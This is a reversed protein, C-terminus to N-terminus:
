GISQSNPYDLVAFMFLIAPSPNSSGEARKMPEFGKPKKALARAIRITWFQSCLYFIAPSPNSSGEARKM